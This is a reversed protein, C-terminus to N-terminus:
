DSSGGGRTSWSKKLYEYFKRRAAVGAARGASAIRARNAYAEPELVNAKSPLGHYLYFNNSRKRGRVYRRIVEADEREVVGRIAEGRNSGADRRNGVLPHLKGGKLTERLDKVTGYSRSGPRSASGEAIMWHVAANSSDHKTNAVAVRVAERLSMRLARNTLRDVDLQIRQAQLAFKGM